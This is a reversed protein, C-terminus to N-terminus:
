ADPETPPALFDQASWGGGLARHLQIRYVLRQRQAALTAQELQQLTAIASMVRLYDAVGRRYQSAALELTHRATQVQAELETIYDSQVRELARAQEVEALATVVADAWALLREDLVAENVRVEAARRGGDFIPGTVSAAVSWFLEDFLEGLNLSQLSVSGALRLAPLRAAVAQTVREDAAAARMMRARVDPRQLLVDAPVGLAPMAPLEPLQRPTTMPEPSPPEGRLARIQITATAEQAQALTQEAQLSELQQRQQEVDLANATGVLTRTRVIDLLQRQTDMQRELLDVRAKQYVINLWAEATTAALTMAIADQDYVLAERDAQAADRAARVRGWVDVEYAASLSAQYSTQTLANIPPPAATRQRAVGLNGDITPLWNARVQRVAAEAQEIRAQAQQLSLNGDLVRAIEQHLLPEAFTLWWPDRDADDAAAEPTDEGHYHAPLELRPADVVSGRVTCATTPALLLCALLGLRAARDAPLSTIAFTM